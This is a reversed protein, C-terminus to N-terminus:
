YNHPELTEAPRVVWASPDRTSLGWRFARYVAGLPLGHPYGPSRNPSRGPCCVDMPIRPRGVRGRRTSTRIRSLGSLLLYNCTTTKLGFPYSQITSKIRFQMGADMSLSTCTSKRSLQMLSRCNLHNLVPILYRVNSALM